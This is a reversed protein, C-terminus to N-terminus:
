RGSFPYAFQTRFCSWEMFSPDAKGFITSIGEHTYLTDNGVDLLFSISGNAVGYNAHVVWYVTNNPRFQAFVSGHESPDDFYHITSNEPHLVIWTQRIGNQMNRCIFGPVMTQAHAKTGTALAIVFLVALTRMAGEPLVGAVRHILRKM